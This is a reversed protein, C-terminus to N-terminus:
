NSVPSVRQVRNLWLLGSLQINLLLLRDTVNHDLQKRLGLFVIIDNKM